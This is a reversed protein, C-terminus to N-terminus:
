VFPLFIHTFIVVFLFFADSIHKRFTLSEHRAGSIFGSRKFIPITLSIYKLVKMNNFDFHYKVIKDLNLQLRMILFFAM